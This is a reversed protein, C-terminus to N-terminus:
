SMLKRYETPTMNTEEKFCVSFSGQNKYGVQLAIEQITQTSSALLNKSLEIRVSQIYEPISTKYVLQFLHSLKNKNTYFTRSLFDISLRQECHKRIFAAVREILELTEEDLSEVNPFICHQEKQMQLLSLLELVKSEYYVAGSSATPNAKCIQSFLIDVEPSSHIQKLSELLESKSFGFFEPLFSDYYEPLMTISVYQLVGHKTLGAEFKGAESVSGILHNKSPKSYLEGSANDSFKSILNPAYNGISLYAPHQYNCEAEHEFTLNAITVACINRIPQIWYYGKGMEPDLQYTIGCHKFQQSSSVPHITLQSFQPEFISEIINDM